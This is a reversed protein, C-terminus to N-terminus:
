NPRFRSIDAITRRSIGTGESWPHNYKNAVSWELYRAVGEVNGSRLLEFPM